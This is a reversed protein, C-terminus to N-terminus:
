VQRGQVSPIPHSKQRSSRARSKHHTRQRHQYLGGTSVSRFGCVRGNELEEECVFTKPRDAMKNTPAPEAKHITKRHRKLNDTSAYVRGCDECKTPKDKGRTPYDPDLTGADGLTSSTSSRTSPGPTSKRSGERCEALISLASRQDSSVHPEAAESADGPPPPITMSNPARYFKSTPLPHFTVKINQDRSDFNLSISVEAAGYYRGSLGETLFDSLAVKNASSSSHFIRDWEAHIADAKDRADLLDGLLKTMNRLTRKELDDLQSQLLEPNTAM